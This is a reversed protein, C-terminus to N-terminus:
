MVSCQKSVCVSSISSITILGSKESLVESAFCTSLLDSVSKNSKGGGKGTDDPHQDASRRGTPSGSSPSRRIPQQQQQQHHQQQQQQLQPQQQQQQAPQNHQQHHHHHLQQHPQVQSQSPHRYQQQKKEALEKDSSDKAEKQAAAATQKDEQMQLRKALEHDDLGEMGAESKFMEWEKDAASEKKNEEQLSLAILYDQDVQLKTDAPDLLALSAKPPVTVFEGDVFQGDGEINNLTEWVM